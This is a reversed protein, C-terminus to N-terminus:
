PLLAVHTQLDSFAKILVKAYAKIDAEQLHLQLVLRIAVLEGDLGRHCGGPPLVVVLYPRHLRSQCM